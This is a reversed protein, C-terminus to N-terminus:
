KRQGALGPAITDRSMGTVVPLLFPQILTAQLGFLGLICGQMVMWLTLVAQVPPPGIRSCTLVTFM